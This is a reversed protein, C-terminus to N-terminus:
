TWNIMDEPLYIVERELNIGFEKLLYRGDDTNVNLTIGRKNTNMHYWYLSKQPNRDGGFFPPIWRMPDGQPPEVKIVDAGIDALIKCCYTGSQGTLDLIRTGTLLRPRNDAHSTLEM